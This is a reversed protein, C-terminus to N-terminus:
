YSLRCIVNKLRFNSLFFALFLVMLHSCNSKWITNTFYVDNEFNQPVLRPFGDIFAASIAINGTLPSFIARTAYRFLNTLFVSKSGLVWKKLSLTPPHLDESARFFFPSLTANQDENWCPLHYIPSFRANLAAFFVDVFSFAPQKRFSELHVWRAVFNREKFRPLRGM